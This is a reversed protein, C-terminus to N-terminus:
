GEYVRVPIGAERALRICNRTGRSSALPFAICIDAGSDVMRKNRQPDLCRGNSDFDAPYSEVPLGAEEWVAKAMLDAGGLHCDGQVLITDRGMGVYEWADRLAKVLTYLDSWDRSGTVLIRKPTNVANPSHNNM